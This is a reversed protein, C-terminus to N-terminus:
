CNGLCDGSSFCSWYNALKEQQALGPQEMVAEEQQTIVLRDVIAEEQQALGLLEM